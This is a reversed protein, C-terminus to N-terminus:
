QSPKRAARMARGFGAPLGALLRLAVHLDHRFGTREPGALWAGNRMLTITILGSLCSYVVSMRVAASAGPTGRSSHVAFEIAHWIVPPIVMAVLTAQWRPVANRFAQALAGGLGAYILAMVFEITSATVAASWGAASAAKLFLASRM